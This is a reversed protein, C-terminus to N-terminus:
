DFFFGGKRKHQAEKYQLHIRNGPNKMESVEPFTHGMYLKQVYCVYDIKKGVERERQRVALFDSIFARWM